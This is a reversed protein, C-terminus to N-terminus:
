RRSCGWWTRRGPRAEWPAPPRRWCRGTPGRARRPSTPPSVEHTAGDATVYTGGSEFCLLKPLVLHAQEVLPGHSTALVVLCEVQRAATLLPQSIRQWAPNHGGQIILGKIRGEAAAALIQHAFLGPEPALPREAVKQIIARNRQNVRRHGPYHAPSIGARHLARGAPVAPVMGFHVAGSQGAALTSLFQSFGAQSGSVLSSEAGLVLVDGGGAARAAYELLEAARVWAPGAAM